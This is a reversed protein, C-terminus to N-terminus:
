GVLRDGFVAVAKSLLWRLKEITVQQVDHQVLHVEVLETLTLSRQIRRERRIREFERELAERADEESAFGGRQIRKSDRGGTRYRFAWLREGNSGRGTLEFIQGQQVM